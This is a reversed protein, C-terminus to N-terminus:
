DKSDSQQVRKRLVRLLPSGVYRWLNIGLLLVTVAPFVVIFLFFNLEVYTIGFLNAANVCFDTCYWYLIAIYNDM